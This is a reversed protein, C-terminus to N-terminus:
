QFLNKISKFSYKLFDKAKEFINKSQIKIISEYNKETNTTLHTHPDSVEIEDGIDFGEPLPYNIFDEHNEHKIVFGSESKRIIKAKIKPIDSKFHYIKPTSKSTDLLIYSNEIVFLMHGSDNKIFLSKDNIKKLKPIDLTESVIKEAENDNLSPILENKINANPKILSYLGIFALIYLLSYFIKKTM